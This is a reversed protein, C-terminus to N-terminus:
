CPNKHTMVTGTNTKIQKKQQLCFTKEKIRHEGPGLYIMGGRPIRKDMRLIGRKLNSFMGQVAPRSTNYSFM